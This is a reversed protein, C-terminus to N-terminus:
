RRDGPRGRAADRIEQQGAEHLTKIRHDALTELANLSALGERGMMGLIRLKDALTKGWLSGAVPLPNTLTLRRELMTPTM